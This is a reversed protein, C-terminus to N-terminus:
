IQEFIFPIPIIRSDNTYSRPSLPKIRLHSKFFAYKYISSSYLYLLGKEPSINTNEPQDKGSTPKLVSSLDVFASRLVARLAGSGESIAGRHNTHHSDPAISSRSVHMLIHMGDTVDVHLNM